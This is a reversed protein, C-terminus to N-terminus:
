REKTFRKMRQENMYNWKIYGNVVENWPTMDGPPSKPRGAAIQTERRRNPDGSPAGAASNDAWTVSLLIMLM